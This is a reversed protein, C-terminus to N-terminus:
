CICCRRGFDRVLHKEEVLGPDGGFEVSKVFNLGDSLSLSWFSTIEVFPSAGVVLFPSNGSSGQIGRSERLNLFILSELM